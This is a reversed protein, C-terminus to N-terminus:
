CLPSGSNSCLAMVTAVTEELAPPQRVSPPRIPRGALKLLSDALATTDGCPFVVNPETNGLDEACGCQDSILCPLGSAMAENVVLGWTEGYDSPLVLCDAAVYARSIETQNLFGPFSARPLQASISANQFASISFDTHRSSTSEASLPLDSHTQLKPNEIEAKLKGTKLKESSGEADFVVDCRARLQAGLEGSGVFLLHRPRNTAPKPTRRSTAAKGGPSEDGGLASLDACELSQVAEVLDLPRKKPIFKGCFLVCFADDPIGWQNRIEAKQKRNQEAQKAFRENDVAYPAPHLQEEKAGYQQYLRRNATGICLFRDVRRFLQGLLLRKIPRKWRPPAPALDNSEGRLWVEVGVRRAMWVAQWYAAVQWGQIWLAKAGSAQLRDALSERLRCQWFRNPTAGPMVDLFKHPYGSLMELDWAFTKGFEQDHSAEVGHRTLYWVEFPVRGDRALAQWLPVQYQIPHTTLIALM